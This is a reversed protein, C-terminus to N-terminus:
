KRLWDFSEKMLKDCSAPDDTGPLDEKIKFGKQSLCWAICKYSERTGAAIPFSASTGRLVPTITDRDYIAELTLLKWHGDIKQLRSIFRTFSVCDYQVGEFPFRISISGTSESLAKDGNLHVEVPCITHVAGTGGTAMGESGRVFGDIDGQYWTIEIHTRSADPHYCDRLYQWQCTDRYYRERVLLSKISSQALIADTTSTM